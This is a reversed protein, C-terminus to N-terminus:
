KRKKYIKIGERETIYTFGAEILQQDQKITTATKTTWEDENINILQTYILTNNINAHGLQQKVYLIDRTKQYLMTAYYHRFDYLKIQQITPDQLKKALKNRSARYTDGYKEANGKFLKDNSNLKHTIIHTQILTNLNASIKLARPNGHKATTPYITKQETDIDKVKLNMLEIPRLGTEKSIKLRTALTKGARAILMELKESTPIRRIKHEQRYKPM